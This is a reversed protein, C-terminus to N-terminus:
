RRPGAARGLGALCLDPEAFPVLRDVTVAAGLASMAGQMLGLHLGCIIPQARALELFPCHHLGIGPLGAPRHQEDASGSPPLLEPAFGLDDLLELLTEIAGDSAPAPHGTATRRGAPVLQAGWDAGATLAREAPADTGALATALIGALMRYRRPGGPAMGQRARFALPPRGPGATPLSVRELYGSDALAELHFRATNPHLELTGAVEAIRVPSGAGRVLDLVELRRGAPAPVIEDAPWNGDPDIGATDDAGATDFGATDEAGATDDAGPSM